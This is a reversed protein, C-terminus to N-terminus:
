LSPAPAYMVAWRSGVALPRVSRSPALTFDGRWSSRTIVTVPPSVVVFITGRVHLGAYPGAHGEVANVGLPYRPEPACQETPLGPRRLSAPHVKALAGIALRAQHELRNRFRLAALDADVKIDGDLVDVLSDIAGGGQASPEGALSVIVFFTDDYDHGIGLVVLEAQDLVKSGDGEPAEPM